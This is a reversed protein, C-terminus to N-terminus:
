TASKMPSAGGEATLPVVSFVVGERIRSGALPVTVCGHRALIADIEAM